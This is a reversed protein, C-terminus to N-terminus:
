NNTCNSAQRWCSPSADATTCDLKFSTAFGQGTPVDTDQSHTWTGLSSLSFNWRDCTYIDLLQNVVLV